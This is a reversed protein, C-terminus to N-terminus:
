VASIFGGSESDRDGVVGTLKECFDTIARIDGIKYALCGGTCKATLRRGCDACARSHIANHAQADILRKYYFYLEDYNNFDSIKVSYESLGFCRIATLDPLIDIVPSCHTHESILSSDGDDKLSDFEKFEEKGIVCAPVKNCDYYPEIGSKLADRFFELLRPKISRFYGFPSKNREAEKNPVTVSVRLRKFGYKKLVYLIHNYEFDPKYVNLGPTIKDGLYREAVALHLNRLTANFQADGIDSPHNLNILARFKPTAIENLYKDLFTGNTFLTIKKVRDDRILDRAIDRFRSHLTPEGGILGIAKNEGSLLFEKAKRFNEM